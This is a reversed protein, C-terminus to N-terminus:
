CGLINNQRKNSSALRSDTIQLLKGANAPIFADKSGRPIETKHRFRVRNERSDRYAEESGFKSQTPTASAQLWNPQWVTVSRCASQSENEWIIWLYQSIKVNPEIGPKSVCHIPHQALRKEEAARHLIRERHTWCTGKQWSQLWKFFSCCNLTCMAIDM